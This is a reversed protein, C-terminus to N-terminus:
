EKVPEGHSANAMHARWYAKASFSGQDLGREILLARIAAVTHFEGGVYAFGPGPPLALSRLHELVLASPEGPTSRRHLWTPGDPCAAADLPLQDSSGGVEIFVLAPTEAALSEVMSFIAPTFSEDGVFLHWTADPNVTVKGRPGIGEVEDGVAVASAWRAGPGDGHVVVDLVVREAAPEFHRVSYRRRVFSGDAAAVSLMMDQGPLPDMAGLGAAGVTIRRMAPTLDAVEHVVLDYLNAGLREAVSLSQARQDPDM